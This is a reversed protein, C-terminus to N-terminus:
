LTGSPYVFLPASPGKWSWSDAFIQSGRYMLVRKNYIVSAWELSSFQFLSMNPPCLPTELVCSHCRTTGSPSSFSPTPHQGSRSDRREHEKRPLQKLGRKRWVSKERSRQTRQHFLSYGVVGLGPFTVSDFTQWSELSRPFFISQNPKLWTVVQPGILWPWSILSLLSVHSGSAWSRVWPSKPDQASVWPTWQVRGLILHQIITLAVSSKCYSLCQALCIEYLIWCVFPNPAIIM